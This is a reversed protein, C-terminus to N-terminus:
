WNKKHVTIQDNPYVPLDKKPDKIVDHWNIKFKEGTFRRLEINKRNAFDSFGGATDIARLVTMDSNYIQRNPIKVEGGVYYFREETKITVTLRKFYQPVYENRIDEQLQAITKGAAVVIVNFPLTIKGDDQIRQKQELIGPPPLDAFSVTVFDGIRLFSSSSNTGAPAPAVPPAGVGAGLPPAAPPTANQGPFVFANPPNPDVYTLHECGALLWVALLWGGSLCQKLKRSLEKM